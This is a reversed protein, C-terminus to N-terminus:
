CALCLAGRGDQEGLGGPGARVDRQGAAIRGPRGVLQGGAELAVPTGGAEPPTVLAADRGVVLARVVQEDLPREEVADLPLRGLYMSDAALEAAVSRRRLVVALELADLEAERELADAGVAV